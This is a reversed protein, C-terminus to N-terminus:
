KGEAAGKTTETATAAKPAPSPVPSTKQTTKAALHTAMQLAEQFKKAPVGAAARQDWTMKAGNPGYVAIFQAKTPRGALAFLKMGAARAAGAEKSTLKKPAAAKKRTKGLGFDSVVSHLKAPLSPHAFMPRKSKKPAAVTESKDNAAASKFDKAVTVKKNPKNASRMKRIATKRSIGFAQQIRNIESQETETFAIKKSM